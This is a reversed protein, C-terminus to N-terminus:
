HNGKKARKEMKKQWKEKKMETASQKPITGEVATTPPVPTAEWDIEYIININNICM